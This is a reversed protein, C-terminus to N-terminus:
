PLNPIPVASPTYQISISCLYTDQLIHVCASVPTCCSCRHALALDAFERSGYDDSIFDDSATTGRVTPMPDEHGCRGSSTKSRQGTANVVIPRFHRLVCHTLRYENCQRPRSPGDWIPINAHMIQVRSLAKDGKGAGILISRERMFGALNRYLKPSSSKFHFTSLEQLWSIECWIVSRSVSPRARYKM